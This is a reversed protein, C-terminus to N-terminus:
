KRRYGLCKEMGSVKKFIGQQRYVRLVRHEIWDPYQKSIQGDHVFRNEKNKWVWYFHMQKDGEGMGTTENNVVPLDTTLQFKNGGGMYVLM